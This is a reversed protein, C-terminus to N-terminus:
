FTYLLDFALTNDRLGSTLGRSFGISAGLKNTLPFEYNLMAQTLGGAGRRYDRELQMILAREIYRTQTPAAEFLYTARLRELKNFRSEDPRPDDNRRNLRASVQVAWQSSLRRSYSASIRQRAGRSGVGSSGPATAGIALRLRSADDRYVVHSATLTLNNFGQTVDGEFSTRGYGDGELKVTTNRTLGAELSFPTLWTKGGDQADIFALGLSGSWEIAAGGDQPAVRQASKDVFDRRTEDACFASSVLCTALMWGVM